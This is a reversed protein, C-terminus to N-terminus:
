AARAEMCREAVLKGIEASLHRVTNNLDADDTLRGEVARIAHIVTSHDRGGFYKGIEPTSRATLARSLFIAVQRPRSFCRSRRSSLIEAQALGYHAAVVSQIEAIRPAPIM